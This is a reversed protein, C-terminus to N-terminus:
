LCVLDGEGALRAACKARFEVIALDGDARSCGGKSGHEGILCGEGPQQLPDGAEPKLHDVHM